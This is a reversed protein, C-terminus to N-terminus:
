RTNESGQRVGDASKRTLGKFKKVRAEKLEQERRARQEREAGALLQGLESLRLEPREVVHGLLSEFLGAFRAATSANFLATNYEIWYVISDARRVANLTLDFKANVGEVSLGSLRLEPLASAGEEPQDVEVAQANQFILKVQFVPSYKLSREPNLAEVLRDFPLEQHAHAAWVVERVRGLLSRFSPDGSLNTRLALQNIFFGILNETEVCNRNAVDTGVVLDERGTLYHLLVKFASMLTIFLTSGERRGLAELAESLERSLTTQHRAGEFSQIEPRPRDAPLELLPPAGALQNKWYSLHADLVGDRLWERQCVAYDAYQIPLAALSSAAGGSFARYLIVLERVLLGMSWGDSIIHHMTLLMVHEEPELRLLRVRLLPGRSLDFARRSEERASRLVEAERGEAPLTSMDEPVLKLPEPEAIRQIPLGSDAQGFTTRLVEHRGIIENYAQELAKVNLVGSLRVGRFINYFSSGPELQDFFWLRQQAFSLPLEGERGVRKMEPESLGQGERIGSEVSQALEGVTRADFLTSLRIEVNFAAKIRSVVQTALLSHGGLEFFDEGVGVREVGLVEGWIGCLVEEVPTRPEVYGRGSEASAAEPAPLAARDVKGSPSLPLEGLVVFSAPVMYDPLQRRAQARL